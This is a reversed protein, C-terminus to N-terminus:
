SGPGWLSQSLVTNSHRRHLYPDTTSQWLAPARPAAFKPIGYAKKSSVAMLGVMSGGSSVCSQSILEQLVCIFGWTCWSGPSLPLSGVLLQGLSPQTHGPTEPPPTPWHQGAAPSPASFAATRAHSRRFSTAMIKMVEGMTESWTLCSRPEIGPDPLDGPSPFPLGSWYEQRSFGMSPPAQHAVTWPNCLTLCSQAVESESEFLLSPICGWGDVSFQILSKSLMGGGMLVLSLIGRLWDIGDPLNWLGRIKRWWLASLSFVM